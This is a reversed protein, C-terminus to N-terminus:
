SASRATRQNKAYIAIPYNPLEPDLRKADAEDCDDQIRRIGTGFGDGLADAIRGLIGTQLRASLSRDGMPPVGAALSVRVNGQLGMEGASAFLRAIVRWAGARQIRESDVQDAAAAAHAVILRADDRSNSPVGALEVGLSVLEQIFEDAWWEEFQVNGGNVSAGVGFEDSTSSVSRNSHEGPPVLALYTPKSPSNRINLLHNGDCRGSQGIPPNARGQPLRPLQLVTPVSEVLASTDGTLTTFVEDLLELPPGHFILRVEAARGDSNQVLKHRILEAIATALVTM